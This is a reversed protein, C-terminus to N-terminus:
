CSLLEFADAFAERVDSATMARKGYKRETIDGSLGAFYVAAVLTEFIGIKMQVAQAVFGALVGCLTDGNGAKGLGSNGTPNIVVKGGPEAILSREGKLVLFVKYTTAFDRAATVRDKIRERDDTGLLRLFEGEHPTLIMPLDNSGSIAFPSLSTIADADLVVPTTRNEVLKRVFEKTEEESSSLGSGIAVCDVNSWFEAIDDFAATSAAGKPTESIGRVMVEPVVRSAISTLASRPTAITALGVGSRIAANGCLVAAGSYNASGAVLLAHGRKNKYSASAFDSRSLWETVDDAESVYTQSPSSNVLACPSGIKALVLEGGCNGAPPMVNALKPATFTVTMDARAVSGTCDPCDAILGSPVDLSVVLTEGEGCRSCFASIFEAVEAFVGELPRTLGTGFLADVIVDPEDGQFNLMDYDLWEELSSIEEFALDPQELEFDEDDAIKRLAEFNTRADGSTNEVQGFLCVEVDAGQAWLIRALAAGDGGNNGRGCMILFSKDEVSGGLRECIARAAANAANEMLVISPIGYKETTARDVERMEEATLVKQM